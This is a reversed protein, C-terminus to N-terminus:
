KTSNLEFKQSYFSHKIHLQVISVEKLKGWPMAIDGWFGGFIVIERYSMLFNKALISWKIWALYIIIYSGMKNANKLLFLYVVFDFACICWEIVYPNIVIYFYSLFSHRWYHKKSLCSSSHVHKVSYLPGRDKKNANCLVLTNM